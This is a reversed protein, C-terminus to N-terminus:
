LRGTLVAWALRLRTEFEGVTRSGARALTACLAAPYVPPPLARCAESALALEEDILAEFDAAAMRERRRLVVLGWVAGSRALAPEAEPAAGLMRGALVALAGQAQRAWALAGEAGLPGLAQIRAEILEALAEGLLGLRQLTEALPHGPAAGAAAVDRWWTLRIEAALPNAALSEARVLEHDLAYLAIVGERARRGSIFRSALWRDPDVRKVQADLDQKASSM